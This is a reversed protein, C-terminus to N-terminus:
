LPLLPATPGGEGCLLQLLQLPGELPCVVGVDVGPLLEGLPGFECLGPHLYSLIGVCLSDTDCDSVIDPKCSSMSVSTPCLIMKILDLTTIIVKVVFLVM